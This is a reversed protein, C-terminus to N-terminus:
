SVLRSLVNRARSSPQHDIIPFDVASMRVGGAEGRQRGVGGGPADRQASAFFVLFCFFLAVISLLAGRAHM